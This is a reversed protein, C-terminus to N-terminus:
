NSQSLEEILSIINKELWFQRWWEVIFYFSLKEVSSYM